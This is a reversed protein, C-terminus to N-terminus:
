LNINYVTNGGSYSFLQQNDLDAEDGHFITYYYNRINESQNSVTGIYYGHMEGIPFGNKVANTFDVYTANSAFEGVLAEGLQRSWNTLLRLGRLIFDRGNSNVYIREQMNIEELWKHHGEQNVAAANVILNDFLSNDIEHIYNNTVLRELYYNGLSHFIISLNNNAFEMPNSSKWEEIEHLFVLFEDSGTEVNLRSNKFNKLGSGEEIKSPWSFVIVNVKYKVQIEFARQAADLLTKSDGHIFVLWDNLQNKHQVIHDFSSKKQLMLKDGEFHGKLYTLSGNTAIQNPFYISDMNDDAFKRNTVILVHPKEIRLTDDIFEVENAKAIIAVSTLIVTLIILNIVKNM